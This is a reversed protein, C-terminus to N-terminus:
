LPILYNTLSFSLIAQMLRITWLCFFFYPFANFINLSTWVHLGTSTPKRLLYLLSTWDTATENTCSNCKQDLTLICLLHHFSFYEIFKSSKLSYPKFHPWAKGYLKPMCNPIKQKKEKGEFRHRKFLHNVTLRHRHLTRTCWLQRIHPHCRSQHHTTPSTAATREARQAPASPMMLPSLWRKTMALHNLTAQHQRHEM